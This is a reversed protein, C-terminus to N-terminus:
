WSKCASQLAKTNYIFPKNRSGIWFQDPILLSMIHPTHRLFANKTMKMGLPHNAPLVGGIMRKTHCRSYIQLICDKSCQNPVRSTCCCKLTKKNNTTLTMGFSPNVPLSGFSPNTLGEKPIVLVFIKLVHKRLVRGLSEYRGLASQFIIPLM